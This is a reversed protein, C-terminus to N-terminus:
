GNKRDSFNVLRFVTRLERVDALEDIRELAAVVTKAQQMGLVLTIVDIAKDRVEDATMPNQVTGRVHEVTKALMTGDALYVRLEASRTGARSEDPVLKMLQRLHLVDDSNMRLYDHAMAFTCRGDLLTGAILYQVNVDPMERNNVVGALDAPLLIEINTIEELRLPADFLIEEMAQVAAQAPSGVSYRKINTAAIEFRSGLGATLELPNPKQSLADLFNPNNDFVGLVGTSKLSVMIAAQVGSQAPGGAFVYAKEIHDVDRQWTTVGSAMQAAHSLVYECEVASLKELVAAAAAAGFTGAISHSSPRSFRLDVAPRGLAMGVRTGVDYGVVVAKLLDLGSRGQREAIALAAPVIACGPHSLSPAHSDDTEDAHASMGNALAASAAGTVLNSGIVMAEESGGFARAFNVGCRGPVMVSGSIMASFTDLMHLRAAQLVEDPLEREIANAIYRSLTSTLSDSGM